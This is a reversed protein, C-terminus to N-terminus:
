LYMREKLRRVKSAERECTNDNVCKLTRERVCVCLFLCKAIDVDIKGCFCLMRM